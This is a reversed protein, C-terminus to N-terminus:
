KKPKHALLQFVKLAGSSLRIEDIGGTIQNSNLPQVFARGNLTWGTSDPLNPSSDTVRSVRKLKGNTTSSELYIEYTLGKKVFALYSWQGAPLGITANGLVHITGDPERYDIVPIGTNAQIFINFRNAGDLAAEYAVCVLFDNPFAFVGAGAAEM